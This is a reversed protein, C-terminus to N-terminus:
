DLPTAAVLLEELGRVASVLGEARNASMVTSSMMLMEREIIAVCISLSSM